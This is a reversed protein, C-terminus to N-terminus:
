RALLSWMCVVLLVLGAFLDSVMAVNQLKNRHAQFVHNFGALSYFIGGVLAIALQWSSVWLSTLGAVGIAANAFGLERVLFLSEDGKLGLIERATYDPQTIQRGGALLLRWGVSWFVFWKGFLAASIYTEFAAAEVAISFLPMAFMFTAVIAYYL